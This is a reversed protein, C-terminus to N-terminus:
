YVGKGSMQNFIISYIITMILGIYYFLQLGYLTAFLEGFIMPTVLYISMQWYKSFKINNGRSFRGFITIIISLLGLGLLSSLLLVGITYWKTQNRYEDLITSLKTFINEWFDYDNNKANRFDTGDLNLMDYSLILTPTSSYEYIGDNWFLIRGLSIDFYFDDQVTPITDSTSFYIEYSSSDIFYYDKESEGNFILKNDNIEYPIMEGTKFAVRIDNILESNFNEGYLSNITLPIAYILVLMLLYFFTLIRKDNIYTYIKSPAFLGAYLRKLLKM